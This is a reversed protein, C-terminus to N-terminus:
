DEGSVGYKDSIDAISMYYGNTVVNFEEATDTAMKENEITATSFAQTSAYVGKLIADVTLKTHAFAEQTNFWAQGLDGNARTLISGISRIEESVSDEGEYELVEIASLLESAGSM